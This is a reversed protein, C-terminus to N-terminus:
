DNADADFQLEAQLGEPAIPLDAIGRVTVDEPALRRIHADDSFIVEAGAVRAIAVIQQDFKAKARSVDAPRAGRRFREMEAFEVACLQDFPAVMIHRSTSLTRLWSPAALGAYVLVEALAPAPIVIKAKAKQLEAILYSVRDACHSVPQLTEHDQPPAASPDFLYVLVSADFAVIM